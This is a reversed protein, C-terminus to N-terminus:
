QPRFRYGVGPVTLVHCPHAPDSELKRRLNSINVRLMHTKQKHDQGWVAELLQGHTLVKGRHVILTRLLEYETPTLQAERGSVTVHRWGLDVVLEGVTMVPEVEIQSTRRLAVRVRALMEGIGFPITVYDDAGADLAAIKAAESDQASVILIPARTWQRLLRTMEIGDLDPLELDLIVVDPRRATITSLAEQGSNAEFVTYGQEALSLRLLRRM